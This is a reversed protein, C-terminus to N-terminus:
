IAMVGGGRGGGGGGAGKGGGGIGCVRLRVGRSLTFARRLLGVRKAVRRLGVEMSNVIGAM